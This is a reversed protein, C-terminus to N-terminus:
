ELASSKSLRHSFPPRKNFGEVNKGLYQNYIDVHLLHILFNIDM